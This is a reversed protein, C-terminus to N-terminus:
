LREGKTNHAHARLQANFQDHLACLVVAALAALILTM